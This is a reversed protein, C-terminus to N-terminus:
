TTEELITRVKNYKEYLRKEADSVMTVPVNQPDLDPLLLQWARLGFVGAVSDVIDLGVSTRSEKIRMASAAGIKAERALRNLNIEQWHHLMLTKLNEWLLEKSPTKAMFPISGV